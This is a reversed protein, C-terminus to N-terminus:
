EQGEPSGSLRPTPENSPDSGSINKRPWEVISLEKVKGQDIEMRIATIVHHIGHKGAAGPNVHLLQLNKDYIVKLIHSHGCIFMGPPDKKLREVIRRDYRGPYGGIHTMWVDMGECDFRLEEKLRRRMEGSDINGWVARVPKLAEIADLVSEKGIDGAHWVEDAWTIHPMLRPDLYGHTDSILLIKKM